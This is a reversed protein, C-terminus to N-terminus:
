LCPTIEFENHSKRFSIHYADFFGDEGLIASVGPSDIFGATIRVVKKIGIIELRVPQIYAELRTGEIGAYLETPARALDFGIARAIDAHFLSRDAGSDLLADVAFSGLPGYLVIPVIPRSVRSERSDYSPIKTYLFRM